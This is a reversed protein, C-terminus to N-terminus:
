TFRIGRRSCGPRAITATHRMGPMTSSKTYRAKMPPPAETCVTVVANKASSSAATTAGSAAATSTRAIPTVASSASCSIRPPARGITAAPATATAASSTVM